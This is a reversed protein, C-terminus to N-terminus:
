QLHLHITIKGQVIAVKIDRSVIVRYNQSIVNVSWDNSNKHSM